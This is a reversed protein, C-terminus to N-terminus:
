AVTRTAEIRLRCKQGGRGAAKLEAKRAELFDTVKKDFDVADKYGMKLFAQSLDASETLDITAKALPVNKQDLLVLSSKAHVGFGVARDMKTVVHLPM